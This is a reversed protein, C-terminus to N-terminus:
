MHLSGSWLQCSVKKRAAAEMSKVISQIEGLVTNLYEVKKPADEACIQHFFKSTASILRKRSADLFGTHV